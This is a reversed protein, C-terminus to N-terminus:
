NGLKWLFKEERGEWEMRLFDRWGRCAVPSLFSWACASSFRRGVKGPELCGPAFLDPTKQSWTGLDNLLSCLARLRIGEAMVLTGGLSSHWRLPRAMTLCFGQEKQSEASSVYVPIELLVLLLKEGWLVDHFCLFVASNAGCSVPNTGNRVLACVGLESSLSCRHGGPTGARLRQRTFLGRVGMGLWKGGPTLNTVLRLGTRWILLRHLSGGGTAQPPCYPTNLRM